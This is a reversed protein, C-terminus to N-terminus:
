RDLFADIVTKRALIAAGLTALEDPTLERADKANSLPLNLATHEPYREFWGAYLTPWFLHLKKEAQRRVFDPMWGHLWTRQEDNAWYKPVM